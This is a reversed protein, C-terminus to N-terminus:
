IDFLYKKSWISRVSLSLHKTGDISAELRRTIERGSKSYWLDWVQKGPGWSLTLWNNTIFIYIFRKMHVDMNNTRSRHNFRSQCLVSPNKKVAIVTKVMFRTTWRCLIRRESFILIAGGWIEKRKQIKLCFCLSIAYWSFYLWDKINCIRYKCIQRNM